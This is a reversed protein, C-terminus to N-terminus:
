KNINNNKESAFKQAKCLVKAVDHRKNQIKGGDMSTPESECRTSSAQHVRWVSKGEVMGKAM